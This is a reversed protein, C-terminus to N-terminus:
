LPEDRRAKRSDDADLRSELRALKEATREDVAAACDLIMALQGLMIHVDAIEGAVDRVTARGRKMHGIATLLEGIEEYMVDMQADIGWALIARRYLDARAEEASVLRTM